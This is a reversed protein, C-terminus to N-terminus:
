GAERGLIAANDAGLPRSPEYDAEEEGPFRIASRPVVMQGLEPHDIKLLAGRAFMHPDAMVERLTRVPGCPVGGANLKQFLVEKDFKVTESGLADDLDDMHQVRARMTAFRADNLLDQRGLAELLRRWHDDSNCIIAVFGDAAPYVNYPALALGGHRNGTRLEQTESAGLALALNSALSPYVSDVMAVETTTAKGNRERHLLATVMAGYLHVGAMFDGIAPGAKLPSQDATGTTAMVGSIAQITLDMAPYLRNPGTSGYGTTSAIIIDPNVARLRAASLGLRDMVGPRFNDVIVDATAVLRLLADIGAESKLDLTIFRKNANLMVFPLAAGKNANRKRLYEGDPPEVKIVEAGAMAMLFTAYPGSYIRTLDIVCIGSLPLRVDGNDPAKGSSQDAM